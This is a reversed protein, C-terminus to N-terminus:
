NTKYDPNLEDLVENIDNDNAKKGNKTVEKGDGSGENEVVEMAGKYDKAEVLHNIEDLKIRFEEKDVIKVLKRDNCENTLKDYM